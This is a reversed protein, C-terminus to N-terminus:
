FRTQTCLSAPHSSMAVRPSYRVDGPTGESCLKNRGIVILQMILLLSEQKQRGNGGWVRQAAISALNQNQNRLGNLDPIKETRSAPVFVNEVSLLREGHIGTRLDTPPRSPQLHLVAVVPGVIGSNHRAEYHEAGALAM